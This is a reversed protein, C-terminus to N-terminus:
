QTVFWGWAGAQKNTWTHMVALSTPDLTAAEWRGDQRIITSLLIPRGDLRQGVALARDELKAVPQLTTTDVIETWEKAASTAPDNEWGHLYLHAGDLSVHLSRATSNIHVIENSHALAIVQLGLPTETYVDDKFESRAGSVYLYDGNPAIAAQRIAGNFVKAKAKQATLALLRELWSQRKTIATTRVKRKTFDVATLANEDAHVIYLRAGAPAFLVAPELLVTNELDSHPNAAPNPNFFGHRVTSLVTEWVIQLNAVQVLAVHTQPNVTYDRSGDVGYLFLWAGDDSFRMYRVGFGLEQEARIRQRAVDVLKLREGPPWRYTPSAVALLRGDPSFQPSASVNDFTLTTTLIQWQELDVLKLAGQTRYQNKGYDIVALTRRDPAPSFVASGVAFSPYGTFSEGTAPDILRLDCETEVCYHM